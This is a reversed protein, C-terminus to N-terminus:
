GEAPISFAYWDFYARKSKILGNEFEYVIAYPVAIPKGTPEIDGVYPLSLRKRHIGRYVGEIVAVNGDVYVGRNDHLPNELGADFMNGDGETRIEARSSSRLVGPMEFSADETFLDAREDYRKEDLYRLETEAVQSDNM